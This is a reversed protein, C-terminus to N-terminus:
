VEEWAIGAAKLAAALKVYFDEPYATGEEHGDPWVFITCTDGFEDM